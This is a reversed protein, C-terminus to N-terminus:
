LSRLFAVLNAKEQATLGIDFRTEYFEVVADLTDASGNHFYPPRAALARLIPGKFKGIDNWKGTIMARGPDTTEISEGTAINRLHYIPLYTARAPDAVGINLPAKVSHNGANPADHCVTCTGTFSDPVTVGSSFTEGNLGAVGSITFTRTNFLAQGRAIARRARTMPDDDGELSLKLTTWADFLNFVLPDFAAGTPNLSVPDNIGLFFPQQSLAAPGGSAGQAHLSGARDDRSQTTFLGTEFAVIQQAEDLTLDRAAQAHGRTAHNAQRALDQLITTTPSSERGDWMVASLFRLNTSPLPRRYLSADNTSAGCQFPDDVQEIFFEAGTPVDLGVRILGRTLLLSYAARREALSRPVVGECNSGDSNSFIPDTGGTQRFRTRVSEPTITWANDPKHCSVCRRGNTGLDQFFPNDPDISGDTMLTQLQGTADTSMIVSAGDMEARVAAAEIAVLAIWITLCTCVLRKPEMLLAGTTIYGETELHPIGRRNQEGTMRM